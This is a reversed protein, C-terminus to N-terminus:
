EKILTLVKKIGMIRDDVELSRENKLMTEAVDMMAPYAARLLQNAYICFSAGRAELETETASNYSSPVVVLPVRNSFKAYQEMFSYIEDPKKEKSHIMIGDVGGDEIYARARELAVKEGVGAILAEIRAIVMFEKTEQANKGAQIKKNFDAIPLLSQDRDTGFLSNQKLGQKDEIIVASVGIRELSRVTHAFIEPLGGSDGDYIMPKTSVEFAEHIMDIRRDTSVLEIDPKGRITSQTLSSGWLFDYQVEQGNPRVARAHEAIIASLGSHVEIGRLMRGGTELNKRLSLRREDTTVNRAGRSRIFATAAQRGFGRSLM